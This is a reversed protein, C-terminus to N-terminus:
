WGACKKGGEQVNRRRLWWRWSESLESGVYAMMAMTTSNTARERRPFLKLAELSAQDDDAVPLLLHHPTATLLLLLLLLLLFLLLL